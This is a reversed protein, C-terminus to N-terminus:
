RVVKRADMYDCIILNGEMENFPSGVCIIAQPEIRELMENYGRMFDKKNHKCGIMGVAVISNKEIGSFCFDYSLSNSWSITPFVIKGKSQWFAGCWRNKAVSEIQRWLPMEQYTSFDPSLLFAYQLFKDLSREPNNFIGNFRYDDVFFHVGKSKNKSTDNSKTNSCAILSINSTDYSQRKILPINYKGQTPFSNRLFLSSNRFNKSTLHNM